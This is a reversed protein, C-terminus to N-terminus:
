KNFMLQGQQMMPLAIAIVIFGVVVAMFLLMIPTLLTSLTDSYETLEDEYTKAVTLLMTDLEGSEEGTKILYIAIPPFIKTQQLYTSIKGEKIIKDRAQSLTDKLIRNNTIKVVIDLAEPLNVGSEILMGLTRSFQAISGMRTFFSIIPLRLKIADLTRSGQDTRKWSRFALAGIILAIIIIYWYSQLFSSISVLFATPWPLAQKQQIFQQTIRPVVFFLLGGVVLVVIGLQIMPYTMASKVRKVIADRRELYIVLRDLIMGLKGTAEGARVLQIYTTDFMSPFSKLADAFSSGEKISDKLSVLATKLKGELQESLLELAQLLPVGANLLIALQKTFLIKEKTSVSRSTFRKWLSVNTGEGAREIRVPYLGMATLQAAAASPSSADLTGQVQKGQKSLAHYGYLAM